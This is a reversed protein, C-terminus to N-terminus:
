TWAMNSNSCNCSELTNVNEYVEYNCSTHHSNELAVVVVVQGWCIWKLATNLLQYCQWLFAYNWFLVHANRLVTDRTTMNLKRYNRCPTFAAKSRVSMWPLRDWTMCFLSWFGTWSKMSLRGVMQTKWRFLAGFYTVTNMYGNWFMKYHCLVKTFAKTAQELFANEIEEPITLLHAFCDLICMVTERSAQLHYYSNIWM